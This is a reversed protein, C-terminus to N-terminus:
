AAVTGRARALVADADYGLGALVGADGYYALHLVGRLGELVPGWVRHRAARALAAERDPASLAHLPRREGRGLLRGGRADLLVVAARLAARNAAPGAALAAAFADVADTRAVPPLPAVPAVVGDVLAEVARRERATLTLPVPATASM